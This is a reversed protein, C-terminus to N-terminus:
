ASRGTTAPAPATAAAEAAILAEDEHLPLAAIADYAHKNRRSYTRWVIALFAVLSLVTVLARMLNIDM